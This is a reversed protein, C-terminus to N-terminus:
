FSSTDTIVEGGARTALARLTLLAINESVFHVSGDAFVFNVGGRHNSSFNTTRADCACSVTDSGAVNEGDNCGGVLATKLKAYTSNLPWETGAIVDQGSPNAWFSQDILDNQSTLCERSYQPDYLSKEGFLFTNSTGDSISAINV